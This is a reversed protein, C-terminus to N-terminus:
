EESLDLPELVEYKLVGQNEGTWQLSQWIFGTSVDVQHANAFQLDRGACAETVTQVEHRMGVIEISGVPGM